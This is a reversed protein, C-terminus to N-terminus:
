HAAGPESFLIHNDMGGILRQHCRSDLRVLAPCEVPYASTLEVFSKGEFHDSGLTALSLLLRDGVVTRATTQHNSASGLSCNSLIQSTQRNFRGGLVKARALQRRM